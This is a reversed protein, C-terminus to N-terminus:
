TGKHGCRTRPACAQDEVLVNGNSGGWLPLKSTVGAEVVGPLARARELLGQWFARREHPEEYAPGAPSIDAVLTRDADFNMKQSMVNDYSALLLAAANVLVFGIAFQAAM